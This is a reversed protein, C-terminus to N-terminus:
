TKGILENGFFLDYDYVLVEVPYSGPFDILFEYCKNFKPNPEDEQYNKEENFEDKGCKVILFPDSDSFLDKKAMNFGELIYAQVKCQINKELKKQLQSDYLFKGVKKELKLAGLGAEGLMDKLLGLDLKMQQYSEIKDPHLKDM